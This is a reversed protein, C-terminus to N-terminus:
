LTNQLRSNMSNNTEELKQIDNQQKISLEHLDDTDTQCSNNVSKTKLNFKKKENQSVQICKNCQYERDENECLQKLM